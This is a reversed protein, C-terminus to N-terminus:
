HQVQLSVPQSIKLSFDEFELGRFCQNLARQIGHPWSKHCPRFVDRWRNIRCDIAEPQISFRNSDKLFSLM